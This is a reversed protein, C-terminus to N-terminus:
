KFDYRIGINGVRGDLPAWVDNTWRGGPGPSPRVLPDHKTQRVDLLNEANVFFRAPGYRREAMLGIHVYPRSETRYADDHLLQRGTYYIEIGVRAKGEAEWAAVVGAQHVPTLPARRREGTEPDTERSHVYTYSATLHFPEPRWRALLEGGSTRTPEPLNVLELRTGDGPVRRLGTPHRISSAFLTGNM